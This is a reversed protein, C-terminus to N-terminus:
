CTNYDILVSFQQLQKNFKLSLISLIVPQINNCNVIKISNTENTFLTKL